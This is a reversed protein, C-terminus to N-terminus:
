KTIIVIVIIAPEIAGFHGLPVSGVFDPLNYRAHLHIAFKPLPKEPANLTLRDPIVYRCTGLYFRHRYWVGM